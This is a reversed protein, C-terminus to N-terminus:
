WSCFQPMKDSFQRKCLKLFRQVTGEGRRSTKKEEQANENALPGDAQLLYTGLCEPSLKSSMSCSLPAWRGAWRVAPSHDDRQLRSTLRPGESFGSPLAGLCPPSLGAFLMLPFPSLMTSVTPLNMPQPCQRFSPDSSQGDM